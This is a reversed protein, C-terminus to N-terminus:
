SNREEQELQGDCLNITRDAFERWRPDHTVVVFLEGMTILRIAFFNASVEGQRPMWPHLRSMPWFFPLIEPWRGPLQLGSSRARVSTTQSRTFSKEWVSDFSYIRQWRREILCPQIAFNLALPLM